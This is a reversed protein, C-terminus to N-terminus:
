GYFVINSDINLDHSLKKLKDELPGKGLIHLYFPIKELESMRQFLLEYNKQETLRGIAIYHQYDNNYKGEDWCFNSPKSKSNILKIDLPNNILHILSENIGFSILDESMDKSQAIISNFKNYFHCIFKRIIGKIQPYQLTPICTERAIFKCGNIKLLPLFFSLLINLKYYGVFCYEPKIKLIKQIVKFGSLPNGKSLNLKIVEVKSSLDKLYYHGEQNLLLLKLNYEDRESLYNLIYLLVREAGGGGLTPSIFLFTPKM